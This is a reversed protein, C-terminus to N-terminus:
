EEAEQKRPDLAEPAVIAQTHEVLHDFVRRDLDSLLPKLASVISQMTALLFVKEDSPYTEILDSIQYSAKQLRNEIAEQFIDNVSM